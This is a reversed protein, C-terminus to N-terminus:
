KKGKNKLGDQLKKVEKKIEPDPDNAYEKLGDQAEKINMESLNRLGALRIDRSRDEKIIRKIANVATKNRHKKLTNLASLKVGEDKERLVASSIAVSTQRPDGFYGLTIMAAQRVQPNPDELMSMAAQVASTSMRMPLAEILQIKVYPDKEIQLQSILAQLAKEEGTRALDTIALLRTDTNAGKLEGIKKDIDLKQAFNTGALLIILGLCISFVPITKKNKYISTRGM